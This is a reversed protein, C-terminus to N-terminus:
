EMVFYVMGEIINSTPKETVISQYKIQNDGTAGRVINYQTDGEKVFVDYSSGRKGFAISMDEQNPDDADAKQRLVAYGMSSVTLDAVVKINSAKRRVMFSQIATSEGDGIAIGSKTDLGYFSGGVTETPYMIIKGLTTEEADGEGATSSKIVLDKELNLDGTMTDGAKMVCYKQVNAVTAIVAPDIGLVKYTDDDVTKEAFALGYGFGEKADSEVALALSVDFAKKTIAQTSPDTDDTEVVRLSSDSSELEVNYTSGASACLENNGNVTLGAGYKVNITPTEATTTDIEIAAGESYSAGGAPTDWTGDDKLYKGVSSTPAPVVGYMAGSSNFAPIILNSGSVLDVTTDGGMYGHKISFPTNWTGDGKLYKGNNPGAAPVLGPAHPAVNPNFVPINVTKDTITLESGDAQIHEIVNSEGTASIEITGDEKETISIGTGEVIESGDVNVGNADVTVGTGPKVSVVTGSINIGNGNTYTKGEPMPVWAGSDTMIRAGIAETSPPKPVLGNASGDFATYSPVTIDVSKNTVQVATGNVKIEDIVNVEADEDIGDLKSKDTASMLTSGAVKDVKANDLSQLASATAYQTLDPKNTLDAYNGTFAGINTLVQTKESQNLSQSKYLVDYNKIAM